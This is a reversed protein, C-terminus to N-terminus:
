RKSGASRPSGVRPLNKLTARAGGGGDVLRDAETDPRATLVRHPGSPENGVNVARGGEKSLPWTGM